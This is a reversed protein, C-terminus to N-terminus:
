RQILGTYGVERLDGVYLDIGAGLAQDKRISDNRNVFVLKGKNGEFLGSAVAAQLEPLEDATHTVVQRGLAQEADYVRQFAEPLHKRDGYMHGVRTGIDEPLNERLWDPTKSSFVIIGEGADLIQRLVYLGDDQFTAKYDPRLEPHKRLPQELADIIPVKREGTAWPEGRGLARYDAVVRAVDDPSIGDAPAVQEFLRISQEGLAIGDVLVGYLDFSHVPKRGSPVIIYGDNAM